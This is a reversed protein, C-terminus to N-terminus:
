GHPMSGRMRAAYDWHSLRVPEIVLAVERENSKRLRKALPSELGGLYRQLLRDLQMAGAEPLCTVRAEGRLGRYPMENTSLDFACHPDRLLARVCLSDAQSACWFRDERYEFWLPVIRLGQKLRVALRLPVRLELLTPDAIVQPPM